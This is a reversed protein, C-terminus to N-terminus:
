GFAHDPLGATLNFAALPIAAPLYSLGGRCSGARGYRTLEKRSPARRLKRTDAKALVPKTGDLARSFV